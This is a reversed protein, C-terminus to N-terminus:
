HLVEVDILLRRGKPAVAFFDEMEMDRDTMECNLSLRLRKFIKSTALYLEAKALNQGACNRTGVSFPTLATNMIKMKDSDDALWREPWFDDPQGFLTSDRHHVYNQMGVFTGEPLIHKGVTVPSDLVRPLTSIIAPYLRMTEKIVATLLPLTQLDKLTEDVNQLEKRLKDQITKDRALAYILYTLTTSTTGSGAFIVGMVEELLEDQTLKRGLYADDSELLPTMMFRTTKDAAAEDRQFQESLEKTMSEWLAMQRFCYSPYGPLYSGVRRTIFPFITMIVGALIGTEMAKLLTLSDGGPSDGYNRNFTCKLIVELSFLGNLDYVDATKGSHSITAANIIRRVLVDAKEGILTENHLVNQQSYSHTQLKRRALHAEKHQLAFINLHRGTLSIDNYFHKTKTSAKGGYIQRYASWESISVEEPGVRM